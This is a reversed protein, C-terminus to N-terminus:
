FAPFNQDNVRGGKKRFDLPTEAIEAGSSIGSGEIGQRNTICFRGSLLAHLFKLKVGTNNMSPLVNIHAEKILDELTIISPNDVLRVNSYSEASKKVTDSIKNGAIVLEIKGDNFINEMLWIASRENEAIAM